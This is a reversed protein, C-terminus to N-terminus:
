QRSILFTDKMLLIYEFCYIHNNTGDLYSGATDKGYRGILIDAVASQGIDLDLAFRSVVTDAMTAHDIDLLSGHVKTAEDLFQAVAHTGRQRLSVDANAAHRHTRENLQGRHLKRLVIDKSGFCDAAILVLQGNSLFM